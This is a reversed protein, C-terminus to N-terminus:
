DKKNLIKSFYNNIKDVHDSYIILHHNGFPHTLFYNVDDVQIEIQTRCLNEYNLNRIIKGKAM